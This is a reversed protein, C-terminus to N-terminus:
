MSETCTGTHNDFEYGIKFFMKCNRCQRVIHEVEYHRNLSRSYSFTKSCIQCEFGSSHKESHQKLHWKSFFKQHCINCEYQFDNNEHCHQIHRKLSKLTTYTKPCFRCDFSSNPSQQLFRQTIEPIKVADVAHMQPKSGLENRITMEVIDAYPNNGHSSWM